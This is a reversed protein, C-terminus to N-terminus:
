SAPCKKEVTIDLVVQDYLEKLLHYCIPYKALQFQYKINEFSVGPFSLCVKIYNKLDEVTLKKLDTSSM